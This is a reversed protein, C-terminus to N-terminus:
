SWIRYAWWGEDEERMRAPEAASHGTVERMERCLHSPDAYRGRLSTRRCTPRRLGKGAQERL